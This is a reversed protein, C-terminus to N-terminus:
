ATETITGDIAIEVRAAAEKEGEIEEWEWKQVYGVFDLQYAGSDPLVVQWNRRATTSSAAKADTQKMALHIPDATDFVLRFSCVRGEFGGGVKRPDPSDLTPFESSKRVDDPLKLTGVLNVVDFTDAGPAPLSAGSAQGRRLITGQGAFYTM